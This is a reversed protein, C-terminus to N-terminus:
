PQISLLIHRYIYTYWTSNPFDWPAIKGLIEKKQVFRWIHDTEVAHNGPGYRLKKKKKTSFQLHHSFLFHFGLHDLWTAMRKRLWVQCNVAGEGLSWTMITFCAFISNIDAGKREGSLGEEEGRSRLSKNLGGRGVLKYHIHSTM